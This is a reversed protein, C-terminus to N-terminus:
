QGLTEDDFFANNIKKEEQEKAEAEAKAEAKALEVRLMKLQVVKGVNISVLTIILANVPTMEVNYQKLVAKLAPEIAQKEETTLAANFRPEIRKYIATQAVDYMAVGMTALEGLSMKVVENEITKTGNESAQQKNESTFQETAPLEIKDIDVVRREENMILDIDM